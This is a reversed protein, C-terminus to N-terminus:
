QIVGVNGHKVKDLHDSYHKNHNGHPRAKFYGATKRQPNRDDAIAWAPGKPEPKEADERSAEARTVQGALASVAAIVALSWKGLGNFFQRRNQREQEPKERCDITTQSDEAM